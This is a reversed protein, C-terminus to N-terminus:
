VLPLPTTDPAVAQHVDLDMDVRTLGTQDYWFSVPRHGNLTIRKAPSRLIDWLIAITQPGHYDDKIFIHHRNTVADIFGTDADLSVVLTEVSACGLVSRSWAALARRDTPYAGATPTKVFHVYRVRLANLITEICENPVQERGCRSVM